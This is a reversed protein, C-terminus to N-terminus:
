SNLIYALDAKDLLIFNNESYSELKMFLYFM